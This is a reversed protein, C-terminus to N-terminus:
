ACSGDARMTWCDASRAWGSPVSITTRAGTDDIAYAFASMGKDVRGTATYVFTAGTWGTNAVAAPYTVGGGDPVDKYIQVSISPPAADIKRSGDAATSHGLNDQASIQFAYAGEVGAPADRPDLHFVYLGGDAGSPAISNGGSILAPSVVGTSDAINASVIIAPAGGDPLTRAYAKPDDVISITPPQDDFYVQQLASLASHGSSGAASIQFGVAKGEAPGASRPLAFTFSSGSGTGPHACAGSEGNVRLCVSSADVGADGRPTVTASVSLPSGVTDYFLGGDPATYGAPTTVQVNSIEPADTPVCAKQVADCMANSSCDTDSSCSGLSSTRCATAFAAFLVILITRM